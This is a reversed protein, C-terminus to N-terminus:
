TRPGCTKGDLAVQGNMDCQQPLAAGQHLSVHHSSNTLQSVYRVHVQFGSACAVTVKNGCSTCRCEIHVAKSQARSASIVIGSVKILRNVHEANVNRLQLPMQSSKVFLQMDPIDNEDVIVVFVFM